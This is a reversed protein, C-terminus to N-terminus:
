MFESSAVMLDGVDLDSLTLPSFTFGPITGAGEHQEHPHVSQARQLM